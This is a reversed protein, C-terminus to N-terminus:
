LIGACVRGLDSAVAKCFNLVGPAAFHVAEPLSIAPKIVLEGNRSLATSSDWQLIFLLLRHASNWLCDCGLVFKQAFLALALKGCRAARWCKIFENLM